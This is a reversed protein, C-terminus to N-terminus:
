DEASPEVATVVVSDDTASAITAQFAGIAPIAGALDTEPSHSVAFVFTGAEGASVGVSRVGDVRSLERKFGAIGAVTSLGTVILSTRVLADGAAADDQEDERQREMWYAAALGGELGGLAEAEAAAAGADSLTPIRAIGPQTAAPGAEAEAAADATTPIAGSVDVEGKADVPEDLVGHAGEGAADPVRSGNSPAEGEDDHASWDDGAADVEDLVPAEPMHQALTAIRAPDEEAALQEIFAALAAEHQTVAERVLDARRRIQVAHHEVDAELRAKREAIRRETEEKIRTIEAKSWERTAAVDDDARRRLETTGSSGQQQIEEIRQKAEAAIRGLSEERAAQAAAQMARSLDAMFKSPRAGGGASTGSGAATGSRVPTTTAAAVNMEREEMGAAAPSEPAGVADEAHMDTLDTTSPMVAVTAPVADEAPWDLGPREATRPEVAGAVGATEAAGAVGAVGAPGVDIGPDGTAVAGDALDAAPGVPEEAEDRPEAADDGTPSRRDSNWPLRFGTREAREAHQETTMLAARM